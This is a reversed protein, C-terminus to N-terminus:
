AQGESDLVTVSGGAGEIKERASGSFAHASVTLAKELEGDGLIKVLRKTSNILGHEVMADPDVDGELENLERVNVVQYETGYPNNFGRKPLRRHLPM